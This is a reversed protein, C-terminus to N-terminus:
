NAHIPTRSAASGFGLWTHRNRAWCWGVKAAGRRQKGDRGTGGSIWLAPTRADLGGRAKPRRSAITMFCYNPALAEPQALVWYIGETLTLPTRAEASFHGQVEEPSANRLHDGRDVGNLLYPGAPQDVGDIPTFEEVDTMDAVVFGPKGERLMLPALSAIPAGPLVLLPPRANYDRRPASAPKEPQNTAALARVQAPALGVLAPIDLKILNEAQSPLSPLTPLTATPSESTTSSM